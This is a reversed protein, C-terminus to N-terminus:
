LGQILTIVRVLPNSLEPPGEDGNEKLPVAFIFSQM